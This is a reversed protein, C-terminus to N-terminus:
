PFPHPVPNGTDAETFGLLGRARGTLAFRNSEDFDLPQAGPVLAKLVRWGCAAADPLTLDALQPRLGATILAHVTRCLPDESPERPLQVQGRGSTSWLFETSGLLDRSRAHLGSHDSYSSVSRRAGGLERPPLEPMPWRSYFHLGLLAEMLASRVARLPSPNASAGIIFFPPEDHSALTAAVVPLQVDQTILSLTLQRGTGAVVRALAGFGSGELCDNAIVPSDLAGAWLLSFADREVVECLARTAAYQYSLGAALGTSSSATLMQEGDAADYPLFVSQAAALGTLNEEAAGLCAVFKINSVHGPSGVRSVDQGLASALGLELPGLLGPGPYPLEPLNPPVRSACYREISEGVAGFIADMATLGAGLTVNRADAGWLTRCDAGQAKAFFLGREWDLRPELQVGRVLGVRSDIVQLPVATGVPAVAM